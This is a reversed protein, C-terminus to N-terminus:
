ALFRALAPHRLERALHSWAEEWRDTTLVPEFGFDLYIGIARACGAAELIKGINKM